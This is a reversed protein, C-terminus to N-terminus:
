HSSLDEIDDFSSPLDVLVSEPWSAQEENSIPDINTM